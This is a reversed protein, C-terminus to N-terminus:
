WLWCQPSQQLRDDVLALGDLALGASDAGFALGTTFALGALLRLPAGPGSRVVSRKAPMTRAKM